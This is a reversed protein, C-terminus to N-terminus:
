RNILKGLSWRSEAGTVDYGAPDLGETGHPLCERVTLLESAGRSENHRALDVIKACPQGLCGREQSELNRVSRLYPGPKM